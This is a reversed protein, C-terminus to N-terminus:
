GTFIFYLGNEYDFDVTTESVKFSHKEDFPLKVKLASNAPIAVSDGSHYQDCHFTKGKEPLPAHCWEFTSLSTVTSSSNTSYNIFSFESHSPLESSGLGFMPIIPLLPGFLYLSENGTTASCALVNGTESKITVSNGKGSIKSLGGARPEGLIVGCDVYEDSTSITHQKYGGIAACGVSLMAFFIITLRKM